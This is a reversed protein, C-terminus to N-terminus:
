LFYGGLGILALPCFLSFYVWLPLTDDTGGAKSHKMSVWAAVAGLACAINAVVVAGMTVFFYDIDM